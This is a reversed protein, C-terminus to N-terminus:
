YLHRDAAELDGSAWYALGLLAAAVGREFYDDEPLLDLAQRAYKVTGSVDGLAQAQYARANAISVPLSRFAEEDVVVMRRRRGEDLEPLM